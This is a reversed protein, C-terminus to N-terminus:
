GLVKVKRVLVAPVFLTDAIKGENNSSQCITVGIEDRRVLWGVSSIRDPGHEIHGSDTWGGAAQADDWSVMVLKM